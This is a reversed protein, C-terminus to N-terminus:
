PKRSRDTARDPLDLAFVVAAHPPGNTEIVAVRRVVAAEEVLALIEERPIQHVDELPFDALRSHLESRLESIGPADAQTLFELEAALYVVGRLHDTGLVAEAITTISELHDEGLALRETNSLDAFPSDPGAVVIWNGPRALPLQAIIRQASFCSPAAGVVLVALILRLVASM